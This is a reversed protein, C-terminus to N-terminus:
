GDFRRVFCIYEEPSNLLESTRNEVSEAGDDDTISVFLMPDQIKFSRFFGEKRLASLIKVMLSILSEKFNSTDDRESAERLSKCIDKFYEGMWAEYEWESTAWKYYPMLEEREEEVEKELKANLAEVSNVALAMTMASSDTYLSCAYFMEDPHEENLDQLAKKVSTLAASELEQWNM